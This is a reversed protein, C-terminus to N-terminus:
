ASADARYVEGTEVSASYRVTARGARADIRRRGTVQIDGSSAAIQPMLALNVELPQGVGPAAGTRVETAGAGHSKGQRPPRAGHRATLEEARRAKRPVAPAPAQCAPRPQPRHLRQIGIAPARWCPAAAACGLMADNEGAMDIM